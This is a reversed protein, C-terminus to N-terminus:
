YNQLQNMAEELMGIIKQRNMRKTNRTYDRIEVLMKFAENMQQYKEDDSLEMDSYAKKWYSVTSTDYEDEYDTLEKIARVNDSGIVDEFDNLNTAFEGNSMRVKFM